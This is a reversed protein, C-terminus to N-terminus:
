RASLIVRFVQSPNTKTVMDSKTIYCMGGRNRVYGACLFCSVHSSFWFLNINFREEM